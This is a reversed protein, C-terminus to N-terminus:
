TFLYIFLYIFLGEEEEKKKKKEKRVKVAAEYEMRRRAVIAEEVGSRDGFQKEFTLYRQNLTVAEDRTVKDLGARYIARAREFEKCTTAEFHAFASFGDATEADPGLDEFM